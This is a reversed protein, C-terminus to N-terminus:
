HDGLGPCGKANARSCAREMTAKSQSDGNQRYSQKWADCTAQDKDNERCSSPAQAAQAVELPPKLPLNQPEPYLPQPKPKGSALSQGIAPGALAILGQAIIVGLTTAAVITWFGCERREKPEEEKLPPYERKDAYFKEM